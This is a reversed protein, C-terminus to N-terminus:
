TVLCTGWSLASESTVDVRTKRLKMQEVFDHVNRKFKLFIVKAVVFEQTIKIAFKNLRFFIRKDLALHQMRIPM